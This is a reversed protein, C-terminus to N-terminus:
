KAWNRDAQQKLKAEAKNWSTLTNNLYKNYFLYLKGNIIKFTTPDIEVKTGYEGMAYACWGGYQPEYQAPNAKFLALDQANAFNYTVGEHTYAISASGKIAKHTTFYAVPDYGMIAVNKGSLNYNKARAAGNQASVSGMAFLAFILVFITRM